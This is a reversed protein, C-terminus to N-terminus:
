KPSPPTGDPGLFWAYNLTPRHKTVEFLRRERGEHDHKESQWYVRVLGGEKRGSSPTTWEPVDINVYDLASKQSRYMLTTRRTSEHVNHQIWMSTTRISMHGIHLWNIRWRLIVFAADILVKRLALQPIHRFSLYSAVRREPRWPMGEHLTVILVGHSADPSLTPWWKEWRRCRKRGGLIEGRGWRERKDRGRRPHWCIPLDLDFVLPFDQTKLSLYINECSVRLLPPLGYGYTIIELILLGIHLWHVRSM